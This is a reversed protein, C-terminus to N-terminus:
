RTFVKYPQIQSSARQANIGNWTDLREFRLEFVGAESSGLCSVEPYSYGYEYEYEYSM